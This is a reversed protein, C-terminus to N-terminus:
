ELFSAKLEPLELLAARGHFLPPVKLVLTKGIWETGQTEHAHGCVVARPQRQEVIERVARSGIHTGGGIDDAKTGHPPAHSLLITEPGVISELLDKIEKEAYEVPTNLPSRVGGGLGAFEFGRWNIKKGHIGIGKKEVWEAVEQSDMNGHVAFVKFGTKEIADFFKELFGPPGGRHTVDGGVLVLDPERKLFRELAALASERGHVDAVCLVTPM